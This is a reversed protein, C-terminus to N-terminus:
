SLQRASPGAGGEARLHVDEVRWQNGALVAGEEGVVHRQGPRAQGVELRTGAEGAAQGEETEM